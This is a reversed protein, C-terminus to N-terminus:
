IMFNPIVRHFALGDFFPGKKWEGSQPDRYPRLGRALGVFSAVTKPTKDDFLECHIVGKPTKFEVRLKGKGELGATAEELSIEKDGEGGGATPATGEPKSAETPPQSPATETPKTEAPSTPAPPEEKKCGFVLVFAVILRKM